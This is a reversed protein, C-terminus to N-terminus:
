INAIDVEIIQDVHEEFKMNHEKNELTNMFVQLGESRAFKLVPIFDTDSAILIIKDSLKKLAITAIDLGIKMDVGKQTIKPSVMDARFPENEKIANINKVEWAGSAVTSGLRLAIMPIDKIEQILKNGATFPKTKSLDITENTIPHRIKYGCPTADYYFIRYLYDNEFLPHNKINHIFSEITSKTYNKGKFRLKKSLYGADVLIAYKM